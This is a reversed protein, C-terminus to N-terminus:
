LSADKRRATLRTSARRDREASTRGMESFHNPGIGSPPSIGATKASCLTGSYGSHVAADLLPAPDAEPVTEGAGHLDEEPEDKEPHDDLLDVPGAPEGGLARLYELLELLLA